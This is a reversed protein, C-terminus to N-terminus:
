PPKADPQKSPTVERATFWARGFAILRTLHGQYEIGSQKVGSKFRSGDPVLMINGIVGGKGLAQRAESLPFRQVSRASTWAEALM